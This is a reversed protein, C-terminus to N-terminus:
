KWKELEEDSMDLLAIVAGVAMLVLAIVILSDMIANSNIKVAEYLGSMILAFFGCEFLMTGINFIKNEANMIVVGTSM